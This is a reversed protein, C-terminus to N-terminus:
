SPCADGDSRLQHLTQSIWQGTSFTHISDKTIILAFGGFQGPRVKNCTVAGEITIYEEDDQGKLWNQLVGLTWDDLGNTGFVYCSPNGAEDTNSYDLEVSIGSPEGLPLGLALCKRDYEIQIRDEDTLDGEPIPCTGDGDLIADETGYLLLKRTMDDLKLDTPNTTFYFYNNAM